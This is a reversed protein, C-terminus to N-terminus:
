KVVKLHSKGTPLRRIPAKKPPAPPTAPLEPEPEREWWAIAKIFRKEGGMTFVEQGSFQPERLTWVVRRPPVTLLQFTVHWWEDRRTDDRVIETVMAYFLQDAVILVIDGERTSDKFPMISKLERLVKELDFEDGM